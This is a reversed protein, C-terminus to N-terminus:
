HPERRIDQAAPLCIITDYICLTYSSIHLKCKFHLEMEQLRDRQRTKCQNLALYTHYICYCLVTLGIKMSQNRGRNWNGANARLDLM